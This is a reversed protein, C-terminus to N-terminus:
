TKWTNESVQDSITFKVATVVTTRMLPSESSLSEQLRPLLAAPDVLTLRGLCEAVVNRTGEEACECHRFLQEWIAPVWAQLAGGGGGTGSQSGIIEKLSHLLLYQRRPTTEIQHLVFPLFRSLNGVAVGGLAHSAASRVEQGIEGIALLAFVHEADSRGSSVATASAQSSPQIVGSDATGKRVDALFREVVGRAEERTWTVTLAAVCKALSHYAQRHVVPLTGRSPHTTPVGSNGRHVLSVLMGLLDAHGLGPLGAVVLAKFFGLMSDLAAGQLLPSRVLHLVEPLIAPAPGILATPLLSSISTLLTLTLQAVHLDAESILPPLESTVENLLENNLASAYNKVLTDLLTLTSLKLARQNKRLFSGLIPVAEALIPTLDIHLPSGAVKTLAKVTTLRTIENRLRDLFIPLCTHLEGQLCDGLNCIIQGMCSIAREKVEQDIDAARLRVLTCRYLEATFPTFDFGSPEDLPRIVCVM